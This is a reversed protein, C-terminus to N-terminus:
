RPDCARELCLGFLSRHVDLVSGRALIHSQSGLIWRYRASLVHVAKFLAEGTMGPHSYFRGRSAQPASM